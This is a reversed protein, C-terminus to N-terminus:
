FRIERINKKKVEFNLIGQEINKTRRVGSEQIRFKGHNFGEAKDPRYLNYSPGTKRM